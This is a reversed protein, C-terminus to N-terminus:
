QGVAAATNQQAPANIIKRDKLDFKQGKGLFYFPGNTVYEGTPSKQAGAIQANYYVAAYSAGLVEFANQHVLVATSEDIGICLLEHHIKIVEVMDFQRNRRLIHQDITVGHIF